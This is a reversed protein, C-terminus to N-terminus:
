LLEEQVQIRSTEHIDETDVTGWKRASEHVVRKEPKALEWGQGQRAETLARLDSKGVVHDEIEQLPFFILIIIFLVCM